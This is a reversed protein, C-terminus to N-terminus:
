NRRINVPSDAQVIELSPCIDVFPNAMSMGTKWSEQQMLDMEATEAYYFDGTGEPIFAWSETDSGCLFKSTVPAGNGVVYPKVLPEVCKGDVYPTCKFGENTDPYHVCREKQESPWVQNIECADCSPSAQTTSNLKWLPEGHIDLFPGIYGGYRFGAVCAQYNEYGRDPDFNTENMKKLRALMFKARKAFKPDDGLDVHEEPDDMINFLCGIKGDKECDIAYKALYELQKPYSEFRAFSEMGRASDLCVDDTGEQLTECPFWYGSSPGPQDCDNCVGLDTCGGCTNNPYQPGGRFDYGHKGIMLKYKGMIIAKQSIYIEDRGKGSGTIMPWLDIGDVEPLDYKKALDDKYDVGALNCFTKYWDAIYGKETVKTGRASKPIYGGSVWTNVRIGGEFDTLKGGRLPWNNASAPTYVPGGNDSMFVFITNKWMKKAKLAEVLQKIQNDMYQTMAAYQRRFWDSKGRIEMKTFNKLWVEPIQLPTHLLHASHFLFLPKKKRHGNIIDLSHQLFFEEEYATGALPSPKHGDKDQTWLDFFRSQCVDVAGLAQFPTKASCYSNAHQLYGFFKDFGNYYPMQGLSAFGVDWKGSYATKYGAEKMKTGILTMNPPVGGYGSVKNTSNWAMAGNNKYNVHMANRGSLLASRSPGCQNFTYFRDLEVGEKVLQNMTPTDVEWNDENHYGINAWGYDDALFFVINPQEREKPDTDSDVFEDSDGLEDHDLTKHLLRLLDKQIDKLKANAELLEQETADQSTGFVVFM